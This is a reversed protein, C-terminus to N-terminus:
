PHAQAGSLKLRDFADASTEGAAIVIWRIRIAEALGPADDRLRRLFADMGETSGGALFVRISSGAALVRDTTRVLRLIRIADSEALYPGGYEGPEISALADGASANALAEYFAGADDVGSPTPGMAVRDPHTRREVHTPGFDAVAARSIVEELEVFDPKSVVVPRPMYRDLIDHNANHSFVIVRAGVAMAVDIIDFDTNYGLSLDVIVVDPRGHVILESADSTNDSAGIVEHGQREVITEIMSRMLADDDCLIFRVASWDSM